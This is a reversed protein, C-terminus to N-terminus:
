EIRFPAAHELEGPFHAQFRLFTQPTLNIEPILVLVQMEQQLASEALKIYVETKGSGTVGQLFPSFTIGPKLSPSVPM